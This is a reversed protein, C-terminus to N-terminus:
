SEVQYRQEMAEVSAGFIVKWQEPTITPALRRNEAYNLYFLESVAQSFIMPATDATATSLDIIM